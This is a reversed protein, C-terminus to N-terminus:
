RAIAAPSSAVTVSTTGVTVPWGARVTTSCRRRWGSSQACRRSQTIWTGNWGCRYRNRHRSGLVPLHCRRDLRQRAVSPPWACEEGGPRPSCTSRSPWTPTWRRRRRSARPPSSAYVGAATQSVGEEVLAGIDTRADDAFRSSQWASVGGMAVGTAAVSAVALAVVKTGIDWGTPRAWAPMTNWRM